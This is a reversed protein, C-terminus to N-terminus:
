FQNVINGYQCHEMFINSVELLPCRIDLTRYVIDDSNEVNECCVGDISSGTFGDHIRVVHCEPFAASVSSRRIWRVTRIHAVNRFTGYFWCCIQNGLIALIGNRLCFCFGSNYHSICLSLINKLSWLSWLDHGSSNCCSCQWHLDYVNGVLWLCRRWMSSWVSLFCFFTFILGPTRSHLFLQNVM